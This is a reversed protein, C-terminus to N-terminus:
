HVEVRRWGTATADMCDALKIQGALVHETHRAPPKAPGSGDNLCGAMSACSAMKLVTYWQGPRTSSTFNEFRVTSGTRFTHAISGASCASSDVNLAAGSRKNIM